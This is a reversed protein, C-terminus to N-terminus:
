RFIVFLKSAIGTNARTFLDKRTLYNKQQLRSKDSFFKKEEKGM